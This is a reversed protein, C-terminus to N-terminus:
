DNLGTNQNLWNLIHELTAKSNNELMMMHGHPAVIYQCKYKKAIAKQIPLPMIQDYCGAVVLTKCDGLLKDVKISSCIIEWAAQGSDPFIEKMIEIRTDSDFRHLVLPYLAAYNPQFLKRLIISLLYGKLNWLLPWHINCIGSPGASGLLILKPITREAAVRQSILGGMSHGILIPTIEHWNEIWDIAEQAQKVYNLISTKGTRSSLNITWVDYGNNVFVPTWFKWAEANSWMGHIFLIAGRLKGIASTYTMHRRIDTPTM